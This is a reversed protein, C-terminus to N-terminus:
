KTAIFFTETGDECFPNEVLQRVKKYPIFPNRTSPFLIWKGFLKKYFLTMICFLHGRELMQMAWVPFYNFSEVESFGADMLRAKWTEPNDLNVHRSIKNFFKSYSGALRKLGLTNFVKMGWLDTIFRANPVAFYFKGGPALCRHVDNLVTQVNPIHELVSNSMAAPFTEEPAPIQDGNGQVLLGYVQREKAEVLPEWWPDIGFMVKQELLAKAFHGDGAGIDLVPQALDQEEYFRQECARLMGRFYPMSFLQHQTIEDLQKSNLTAM